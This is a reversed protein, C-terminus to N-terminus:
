RRDVLRDPLTDRPAYRHIEMCPRDDIAEGSQPLWRTFLCRYADAMGESAGRHRNGGLGRFQSTVGTSPYRQFSRKASTAVSSRRASHFSRVSPRQGGGHLLAQQRNGKNPTRKRRPWMTSFGYSARPARAPFSSATPGTLLRCALTSRTDRRRPKLVQIKPLACHARDWTRRPAQQRTEPGTWHRKLASDCPKWGEERYCFHASATRQRCTSACLTKAVACAGPHPSISAQRCRHRVPSRVQGTISGRLVRVAALFLIPLLVRSLVAGGTAWVCSRRHCRLGSDAGEAAGSVLRHISGGVGRADAM